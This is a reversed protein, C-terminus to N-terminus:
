PYVAKAYQILSNKLSLFDNDTFNVLSPKKDDPISALKMFDSAVSPTYTM